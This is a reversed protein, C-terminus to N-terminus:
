PTYEFRNVYGHLVIVDATAAYAKIVAGNQLILGPIIEYLGDEAPVTFEIDDDPSATGGWQITLKVSSGSTNVAWLYVADWENASVNSLATHITTGPSGTAAVKIGKGDTSGSLGVKKHDRYDRNM